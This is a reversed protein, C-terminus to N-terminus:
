IDMRLQLQAEAIRKEAIAYYGPDIEIGIFNRDTQVCAVGTTGSGMFPDIVIAGKPTLDTIIRKMLPLPKQTPHQLKEASVRLFRYVSTPRRGPFKYGNRIAFWAIDHQPAYQAKLDGLGHTCKDWIVQSKVKWHKEIAKRWKEQVDWRCFSFLCDAEFQLWDIIFTTDGKIIPFRTDKARRASQYKIGYPPDTIIADMSGNAITPLIDLCDGLHLKVNIM